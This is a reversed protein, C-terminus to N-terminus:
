NGVKMRNVSKQYGNISKSRQRNSISRQKKTNTNTVPAFTCEELEARGRREDEVKKQASRLQYKGVQYLRNIMCKETDKDIYVNEKEKSCYNSEM